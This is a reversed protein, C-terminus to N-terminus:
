GLDARVKALTAQLAANQAQLAFLDQTAWIRYVGKTTTWGISTWRCDIRTGPGILPNGPEVSQTGFPSRLIYNAPDWAESIVAGPEGAHLIADRFGLDAYKEDTPTSNPSRLHHGDDTWDAPVTM